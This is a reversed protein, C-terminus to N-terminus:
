RQRGATQHQAPPTCYRASFVSCESHVLVTVAHAMFFDLCASLGLVGRLSSPLQLTPHYHETLKVGFAVDKVNFTTM